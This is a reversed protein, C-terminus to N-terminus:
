GTQWFSAWASMWLCALNVGCLRAAMTRHTSSWSWGWGRHGGSDSNTHGRHALPHGAILGFPRVPQAVAARSWVALGPCQRRRDRGLDHRQAPAAPTAGLDGGSHVHRWRRDTADEAARVRRRELGAGSVLYAREYPLRLQSLRSVGDPLGRTTRQRTGARSRQLRHGDARIIPETPEVVHEGSDTVAESAIISDGDLAPTVGRLVARVNSSPHRRENHFRNFAESRAVLQGLPQVEQILYQQDCRPDGHFQGFCAICADDM